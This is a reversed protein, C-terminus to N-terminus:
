QFGDIVNKTMKYGAQQCQDAINSSVAAQQSAESFADIDDATFHGNGGDLVDDVDSLARTLTSDLNNQLSKFNIMDQYEM